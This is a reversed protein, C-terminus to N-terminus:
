ERLTLIWEAISFESKPGNKVREILWGFIEAILEFGAESLPSDKYFIETPRKGHAAIQVGHGLEHVMLLALDFRLYLIEDRSFRENFVDKPLRAQERMICKLRQYYMERAFQISCRASRPFLRAAEAPLPGDLHNTEGATFSTPHDWIDHLTPPTLRFEVIGAMGRLIAKARRRSRKTLVGQGPRPFIAAKLDWKFNGTGDSGDLQSM